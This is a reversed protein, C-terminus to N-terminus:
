NEKCDQLLGIFSVISDGFYDLPRRRLVSGTEMRLRLHQWLLDDLTSLRYDLFMICRGSVQRTSLASNNVSGGYFWDIIEEESGHNGPSSSHSLLRPLSSRFSEQHYWIAKTKQSPFANALYVIKGRYQCSHCMRAANGLYPLRNGDSCKKKKTKQSHQRYGSWGEARTSLVCKGEESYM